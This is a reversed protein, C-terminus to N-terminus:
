HAQFGKQEADTSSEQSDAADASQSGDSGGSCGAMSLVMGAALLVALVRKKMIMDENTEEPPGGRYKKNARDRETYGIIKKFVIPKNFSVALVTGDQEPQKLIM